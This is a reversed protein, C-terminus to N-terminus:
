TQRISKLLSAGDLKDISSPTIGKGKASSIPAPANTATRKQVLYSQGRIEAKALEAALRTPTLDYLEGILGEKMLAYLALPANDAEVIATQLKTDRGVEDFFEANESILKEYDPTNKAFEAEKAAAQSLGQALEPAIQPENKNQASLKQSDRYADRADMYEELTNFDDMNPAQPEQPKAQPQELRAKLERLERLERAQRALKSNMHSKRNWERKALQEPTLESDPKSGIDESEKEEQQSDVEPTEETTTEPESAENVPATQENAVEPTAEAIIADIDM